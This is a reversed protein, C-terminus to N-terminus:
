PGPPAPIPDVANCDGRVLRFGCSRIVLLSCATISAQIAVIIPWIFFLWSERATPVPLYSAAIAGVAFATPVLVALRPIPRRVGLAAWLTALEILIFCPPFIAVSVISEWQRDAVTRVVRGIGLVVAVLATALLLNGISFQFGDALPSGNKLHVLRLSLRSHSHRLVILVVLVPITTLAIILFVSLKDGLSIAMVPLGWLYVIAAIVAVFRWAM